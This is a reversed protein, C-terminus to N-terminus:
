EAVETSEGSVGGIMMEISAVVATGAGFRPPFIYRPTWTAPHASLISSLTTDSM